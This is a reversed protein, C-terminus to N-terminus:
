CACNEKQVLNVTVITAQTKDISNQVLLPQLTAALTPVYPMTMMSAHTGPVLIEVVGEHTHADWGWHPRPDEWTFEEGAVQTTDSARLLHIPCHLRNHTAQEKGHANASIRTVTVWQRLDDVTSQASFMVQQRQFAQLTHRYVAESDALAQLGELTIGLTLGTLSEMLRVLSWLWPEDSEGLDPPRPGGPATTDLVGLLSLQEGQQELQQAMAFAVRGGSSHGVLRYPGHPQRQRVAQLHYAALDEVTEPTAAEGGLGPTQLAYVPQATGLLAALPQLYLVSGFMGPLLFVPPQEGGAQITVCNDWTVTEGQQRLYDALRAVTPHQFLWGLPLKLGLQQQIHGMLRVALLSHGGQAFFDDQIGLPRRNLAFEWSGLLQLELTNRPPTPAHSHSPIADPESLAQRDVKGNPTLPLQALVTFSAPIMYDPLQGALWTRLATTDLSGTTVEGAAVTGSDAGAAVVYAALSPNGEREHLVVVAAAVGPHQALVAEIEGLEIRFGRLKVQHDIRGLYELNGDLLWRALDGTRYIREVQGFLEVEVFKEATLAPRNLYGRALGAGAICLEGPIGPPLPQLHADLLHITKGALPQGIPVTQLTDLDPQEPLTYVTSTVSAETPGYANMCTLSSFHRRTNQALALPLAEGGVILLRLTEQWRTYSTDTFQCVQQWYAPPLNAVTVQMTDLYQVLQAPTLRNDALLLLTAGGFWTSFLQEVSADFNFSAFQLVRDAPTIQCHVQMTLCHSAIAHQATSVGKPTGTSGSTYIVYALDQPQSRPPPNDVPQGATLLPDDAWVLLPQPNLDALPLRDQLHSQTLLLTVQSDQVMFALREAPYSPDLPVYAGGAKLIALLGIVMELSREVCIGVLTDAVVGHQILVHALQNARANLVAYTLSQDEFVVATHDSTRMVQAEFLSVITQDQPYATDTANWERLQQVEAATLLNYQWVPQDLRACIGDLLQRFHGALRQIREPVFLDTNYKFACDLTQGEMIELTLDFQGEMQPIAVPTCDLLAPIADLNGRTHLLSFMVQFLPSASSNRQPQLQQVLLPLPYAQHELADLIDRHAEQLVQRFGQGTFQRRLVVPNVFYGVIGQFAADLRGASTPSGLLIDTQGTYRHLLVQLAAALLSFLTTKEQRALAQLATALRNDLRFAHTAGHYTQVPPRPHDTPLDLMPIEGALQQQWYDAMRQWQASAALQQEAHVYHAYSHSLAPLSLLQGRVVSEYLQLWEQQLMRMSRADGLIHHMVFILRGQGAAQRFFGARVGTQRLDFPQQTYHYSHTQLTLEDWAQADVVELVPLPAAMHQWTQGDSDTEFVARCQAHRTALTELTAQLVGLDVRAHLDLAFAMNYAPSDPAEQYLFWLAQQGYSLPFRQENISEPTLSGLYAVIQAKHESLQAKLEQTLAGKPAKFRLKGDEVWLAIDRQQTTKVLDHILMM